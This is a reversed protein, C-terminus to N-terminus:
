VLGSPRNKLRRFEELTDPNILGKALQDYPDSVPVAFSITKGIDDPNKVIYDRLLYQASPTPIKYVNRKEAASTVQPFQELIAENIINRYRGKFPDEASVYEESINVNLTLFSQTFAHHGTQVLSAVLIVLVGIAVTLASLGIMRLVFDGRRRRAYRAGSMIAKWNPKKLSLSM